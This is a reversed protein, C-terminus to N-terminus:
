FNSSVYLVYGQQFLTEAKWIDVLKEEFLVADRHDVFSKMKANVGGLKTSVGHMWFIVFPQETVVMDRSHVCQNQNIFHREVLYERMMEGAANADNAVFDREYHGHWSQSSVKFHKV